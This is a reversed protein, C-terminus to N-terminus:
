RATVADAQATARERALEAFVWAFAREMLWFENPNQEPRDGWGAHLRYQGLSPANLAEEVTVSRPTECAPDVYIADAPCHLECVFCTQCDM